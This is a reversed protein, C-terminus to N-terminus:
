TTTKAKRAKSKKARKAKSRTTPAAAKMGGADPAVAGGSPSVQGPSGARAPGGSSQGTPSQQALVPAAFFGLAAAFLLAKKMAWERAQDRYSLARAAHATRAPIWSDHALAKLQDLDARLQEVEVGLVRHRQLLEGGERDCVVM